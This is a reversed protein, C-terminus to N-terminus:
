PAMGQDIRNLMEEVMRAGSESNLCAVPTAGNLGRKPRRLWRDAKEGGFIRQAMETIRALRIANEDSIM